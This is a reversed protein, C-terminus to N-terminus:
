SRRPLENLFPIVRRKVMAGTKRQASLGTQERIFNLKGERGWEEGFAMFCCTSKERNELAQKVETVTVMYMHTGGPCYLPAVGNLFASHM